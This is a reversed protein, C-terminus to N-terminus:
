VKKLLDEIEPYVRQKIKEDNSFLGLDIKHQHLQFGQRDLTFEGERGRMDHIEAPHEEFKRRYSAASGTLYSDVGGDKPALYYNLTTQVVKDTLNSTALSGM